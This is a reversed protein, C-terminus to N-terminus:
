LEGSTKRRGAFFGKLLASSEAAMLGSVVEVEHNLRPDSCVNYLSGAAGAKPDFAGFVVRQLRAAVLAGACMACPELTVFLTAGDLRWERAASCAARIAVIEAHATADGDAERRNRGSAVVEGNRVIVAGVPVDSEAGAMEAQTLALRMAEEDTM